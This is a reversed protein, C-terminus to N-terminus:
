RKGPQGPARTIQYIVWLIGGVVLVKILTRM